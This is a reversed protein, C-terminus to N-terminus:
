DSKQTQQPQYSVIHYEKPVAIKQVTFLMGINLMVFNSVNFQLELVNYSM